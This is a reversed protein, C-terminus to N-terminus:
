STEIKHYTTSCKYIKKLITLQSPQDNKNFINQHDSWHSVQQPQVQASRPGAQGKGGQWSRQLSPRSRFRWIGVSFRASFAPDKHEIPLKGLKHMSNYGRNYVESYYKPKWLKWNRGPESTRDKVVEACTPPFNGMAWTLLSFRCAWCRCSTLLGKTSAKTSNSSGSPKFLSLPKALQILMLLKIIILGSHFCQLLFGLLTTVGPAIWNGLTQWKWNLGWAHAFAKVLEEATPPNPAWHAYSVQVRCSSPRKLVSRSSRATLSWPMEARPSCFSMRSPNALHRPRSLSLPKWAKM